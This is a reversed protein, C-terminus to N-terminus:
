HGCDSRGKKPTGMDTVPLVAIVAPAVLVTAADTTLTTVTRVATV